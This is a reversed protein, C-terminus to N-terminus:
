QNSFKTNFKLSQDELIQWCHKFVANKKINSKSIINIVWQSESDMMEVNLIGKNMLM